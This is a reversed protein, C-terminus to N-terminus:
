EVCLFFKVKQVFIEEGDTVKGKMHITMNFINTITKKQKLTKTTEM